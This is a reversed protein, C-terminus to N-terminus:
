MAKKNDEGLFAKQSAEINTLEQIQALVDNLEQTLAMNEQRLEEKKQECLVKNDAIRQKLEELVKKQAALSDVTSDRVAMLDSAENLVEDSTENSVSGNNEKNLWEDIKDGSTPKEQVEETPTEADSLATEGVGPLSSFDFTPTEKNDSDTTQIVFDTGNVNRERNIDGPVVPNTKLRRSVSQISEFPLVNGVLEKYAEIGFTDKKAELVERSTLPLEVPETKAEPVNEPATEAQTDPTAEVPEMPAEAEASAVKETLSQVKAVSAEINEKVNDFTSLKALKTGNKAIKIDILKSNDLVTINDQM